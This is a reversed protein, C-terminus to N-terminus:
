YYCVYFNKQISNTCVLSRCIDKKKTRRKATGSPQGQRRQSRPQTRQVPAHGPITDSGDSIMDSEIPGKGPPNPRGEDKEGRGWRKELRSREPINPIKGAGEGGTHSQAELLNETTSPKGPIPATVYCLPAVRPVRGPACARPRM